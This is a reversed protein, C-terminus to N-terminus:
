TSAKRKSSASSPPAAHCRAIGLFHTFGYFPREEPPCHPTNCSWDIDELFAKYLPPLLPSPLNEYREKILLGVQTKQEGKTAAKPELYAQLQAEVESNGIKKAKEVFVKAMAQCWAKDKFQRLNLTTLM